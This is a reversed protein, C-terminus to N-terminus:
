FLTGDKRMGGKRRSTAMLTRGDRTRHRAERHPHGGEHLVALFAPRHNRGTFLRKIREAGANWSVVNGKPDLMFIAYDRVSEVLLRFLRETDNITPHGHMGDRMHLGSTVNASELV